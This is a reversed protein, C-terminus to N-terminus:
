FSSLGGITAGGGRRRRLELNQCGHDGRIRETGGQLGVLNHQFVGGRSFLRADIGRRSTPQLVLSYRSFHCCKIKM